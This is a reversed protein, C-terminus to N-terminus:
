KVAEVRLTKDEGSAYLRIMQAGTELDLTVEGARDIWLPMELGAAKGIANIIDVGGRVRHGDNLNNNYEIYEGDRNAM